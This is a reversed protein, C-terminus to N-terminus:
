PEAKPGAPIVKRSPSAIALPNDAELAERRTLGLDKLLQPEDASARLKRRSVASSVNYASRAPRPEPEGLFHGATRNAASGGAM